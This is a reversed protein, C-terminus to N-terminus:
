ATPYTIEGQIIDGTAWATGPGASGLANANGDMFAFLENPTAPNVFILAGTYHATGQDFVRLSGTCTPGGFAANGLIPVPFKYLGSGAVFGAGITVAFAYTVLGGFNKYWAKYTSAGKTPNTTTGVITFSASYDVVVASVPAIAAEAAALRNDISKVTADAAAALGEGLNPGHPADNLLQFPWGYNPTGGPM